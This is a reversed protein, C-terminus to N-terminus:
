PELQPMEWVRFVGSLGASIAIKGDESFFPAATSRTGSGELIAVFARRSPSWLRLGYNSYAIFRGDPSFAVRNPVALGLGAKQSTTKGSPIDLLLTERDGAAILTKADPSFAFASYAKLSDRRLDCECLKRGSPFDWVILDPKTGVTAIRRGNLSVIASEVKGKHGDLLVPKRNMAVVDWAKVVPDNNRTHAVLVDGHPSFALNRGGGELVRVHACEGNSMDWTVVRSGPKGDGTQAGCASILSRGDASFALITQYGTHGRLVHKPEDKKVDWVTLSYKFQLNEIHTHSCAILGGDPSVAFHDISHIKLPRDIVIARKERLIPIITLELGLEACWATIMLLAISTGMWTSIPELIM